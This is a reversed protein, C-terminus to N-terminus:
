FGCRMSLPLFISQLVAFWTGKTTGPRDVLEEVEDECVERVDEDSSVTVGM